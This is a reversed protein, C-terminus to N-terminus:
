LDKLSFKEDNNNMMCSIKIQFSKILELKLQKDSAPADRNYRSRGECGLDKWLM